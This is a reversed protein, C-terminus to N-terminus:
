NPTPGLEDRLNGGFTTTVVVKRPVRRANGGFKPRPPKNDPTQTRRHLNGRTYCSCYMNLVSQTIRQVMRAIMRPAPGVASCLESGSRERPKRFQGFRHAKGM